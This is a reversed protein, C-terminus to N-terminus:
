KINRNLSSMLKNAREVTTNQNVWNLSNFLMRNYAEQSLANIKKMLDDYSKYSLCNNDPILGHPACTSPKMEINKFCILAGNAAIEYHRLCDWGARKTTIGFKSTQIDSYYEQESSFAYKISKGPIINAIEEDVIHQTFLKTKSPIVKSIKEQPIAFAIPRINKHPKLLRLIVIPLLKHYSSITKYTLERKFYLFRRHPKPRIRFLSQMIFKRSYPFLMDSDEGDLVCVKKNIIFPYLKYFLDYQRHISTFIVVDFFDSKLADELNKGIDSKLNKDILGYLTFGGGYLSSLPKYDNYLVSKTPYDYAQNGLLKKFGHVISDQLYDPEGTTLLLVRM